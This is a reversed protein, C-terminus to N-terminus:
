LRRYQQLPAHEDEELTNPLQDPNERRIRFMPFSEEISLQLYRPAKILQTAASHVSQVVGLESEGENFSHMDM